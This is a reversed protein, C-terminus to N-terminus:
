EEVQSLAPQFFKLPDEMNKSIERWFMALRQRVMVQLGSNMADKFTMNSSMMLEIDKGFTDKNKLPIDITSIINKVVKPYCKFDEFKKKDIAIEGHFKNKWLIIKINPFNRVLEELCTTTHVVDSGGTLPVHTFVKHDNEEILDFVGNQKLYPILAPYCSSGTDIVMHESKELRYILDILDDFYRSNIEDNDNMLNIHKVNLSTIDSFSRNSPDTDIGYVTYGKESLFQHWMSSVLSKGAGGKKQLTIHVFAM